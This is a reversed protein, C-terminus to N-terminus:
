VIAVFSLDDLEPLRLPIFLPTNLKFTRPGCCCFVQIGNTKFLEIDAVRFANFKAIM